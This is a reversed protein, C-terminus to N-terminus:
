PDAGAGDCDVAPDPEARVGREAAVLLGADTPLHTHGAELLVELGLGHRLGRSWCRGCLSILMRKSFLTTTTVPAACPMPSAYARASAASPADTTTASRLASAPSCTAPSM